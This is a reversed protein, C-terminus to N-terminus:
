LSATTYWLGGQLWGCVGFKIDPKFVAAPWYYWFIAMIYIKENIMSEKNGFWSNQSITQM